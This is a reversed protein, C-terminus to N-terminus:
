CPLAPLLRGSTLFRFSKCLYIFYNFTIYYLLCMQFVHLWNTLLSSGAFDGCAASCIAPSTYLVSFVHSLPPPLHCYTATSHVPLHKITSPFTVIFLSYITTATKTPRFHKPRIDNFIKLYICLMAITANYLSRVHLNKHFPLHLLKHLVISCKRHAM